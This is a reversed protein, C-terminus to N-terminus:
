RAVLELVVKQGPRMESVNQMRSGALFKADASYPFTRVSGTKEEVVTVRQNKTDLTQIKADILTVPNKVTKKYIVEDGVNLLAMDFYKRRNIRVATTKKFDFVFLDGSDKEEITYTSNHPDINQITGEVRNIAFVQSSVFLSVAVTLLTLLKM